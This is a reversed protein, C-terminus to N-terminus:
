FLDYYNFLFRSEIIMVAPPLMAGRCFILPALAPVRLFEGEVVVALTAYPLQQLKLPFNKTL